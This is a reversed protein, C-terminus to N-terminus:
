FLSNTRIIIIIKRKKNSTGPECTATEENCYEGMTPCDEPVSCSVRTPHSLVAACLSVISPYIFIPGGLQCNVNCVALAKQETKPGKPM